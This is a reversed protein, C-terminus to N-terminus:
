QSHAQPKIDGCNSTLWKGSQKAHFTEARDGIMTKFTADGTYAKPSQFTIVSEGHSPPETNCTYSVKYVKASVQTLKHECEENVEPLEGRNIEEQTVCTKIVTGDKFMQIGKSAMDLGSDTINVGQEAMMGEIMIRQEPPLNAFQKKMEELGKAMQEQQAKQEASTNASDMKVNSEWLGPKMDLQIAQANLSILSTFILSVLMHLKM